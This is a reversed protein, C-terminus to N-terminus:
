IDLYLMLVHIMHQKLPHELVLMMKMPPKKLKVEVVNLFLERVMVYVLLVLKLIGHLEKVIKMMMIIGHQELQVAHIKIVHQQVIIMYQVLLGVMDHYPSCVDSIGIYEGYLCDSDSYYMKKITKGDDSCVYKSGVGSTVGSTSDTSWECFDTYKSITNTTYKIDFLM